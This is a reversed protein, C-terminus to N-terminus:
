ESDGQKEAMNKTLAPARGLVSKAKKLVEGVTKTPSAGVGLWYAVRDNKIGLKDTRPNYWGLDEIFDGKLKSRKEQIVVRFSRQHKKGVSKLKIALMRNYDYFLFPAFDFM